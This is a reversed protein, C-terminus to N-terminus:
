TSQNFWQQVSLRLRFCQVMTSSKFALAFGFANFPSAMSGKFKQVARLAM